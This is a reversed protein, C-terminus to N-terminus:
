EGEEYDETNVCRSYRDLSALSIGVAFWRNLLPGFTEFRVNDVDLGTLVSELDDQHLEQEYRIRNLYATAHRMAESKAENDAAENSQLKQAASRVFFYVNYEPELFGGAFTGGINTEIAVFPGKINKAQAVLNAVQGISEISFFRRNDPERHLMPKYIGAWHETFDILSFVNM